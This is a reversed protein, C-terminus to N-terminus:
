CMTSNFPRGNRLQNMIGVAVTRSPNVFVRSGTSSDSSVPLLRIEPSDKAEVLWEQFIKWLLDGVADYGKSSFHCLDSSWFEKEKGKIAM